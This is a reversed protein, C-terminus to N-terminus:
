LKRLRVQTKNDHSDQVVEFDPFKGSGVFILSKTDTGDDNDALSWTIRNGASIM